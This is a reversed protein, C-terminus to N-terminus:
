GSSYLVKALRRSVEDWVHLPAGAFCFRFFGPEQACASEGPTPLVRAEDYIKRWLEREAEFTSTHLFRRFDAWLFLAAGAPTHPVGCQSLTNSAAEYAAKLRKRNTNLFSDIFQTDELMQAARRVLFSYAIMLVISQICAILIVQSCYVHRIQFDHSVCCFYTLGSLAQLLSPNHTHMFGCRFGSACMDKSVGSLTHVLMRAKQQDVEKAIAIAPRFNQADDRNFISNAYIEDSILHMNNAFVFEVLSRITSPYMTIGTPNAPNTLLLARVNYGKANEREIYQQLTSRTPVLGGDPEHVPVARCRNKRELDTIFAPYLPAPILVSNNADCVAFTTAEILATAGAAVVIEEAKLDVEQMFTRQLYGAIAKRFSPLGRMDNYKSSEVDPGKSENIREVIQLAGGSPYSGFLKLALLVDM